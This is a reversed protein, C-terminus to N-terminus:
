YIDSDYPQNNYCFTYTENNHTFYMSVTTMTTKPHKCMLGVKRSQSESKSMNIDKRCLAITRLGTIM